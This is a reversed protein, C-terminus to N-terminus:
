EDDNIKIEKMSSNRLCKFFFRREGNCGKEPLVRVINEVEIM